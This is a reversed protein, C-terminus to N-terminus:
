EPEVVTARIIPKAPEPTEPEPEPEPEETPEAEEVAEGSLLGELLAGVTEGLEVGTAEEISGTIVKAANDQGGLIQSLAGLTEPSTGLIENLNEGAFEVPFDRLTLKPEALPGSGRVEITKGELGTAKALPENLSAVATFDTTQAALKVSGNVLLNASSNAIEFNNTLMIGSEILYSGSVAGAEEFRFAPIVRGLLNQVPGVVPFAPLTAEEVRIDGGGRIREVDGYGVGRFNMYLDGSMGIDEKGFYASANALPLKAIEILGSFPTGETALNVTGNLAVQGGLLDAALDNTELRGDNIDIQGRIGTVPLDGWEAKYVLGKRHEYDISLQAAEPTELPVTGSFHVNPADAFAVKAWKERAEPRIATYLSLLDVSSQARAIDIRKEATAVTFVGGIFGEGHGIQFNSFELIESSPDFTCAATASTIPVGRWTFDSGNLTAKIKVGETAKDGHIDVSLVPKEGETELALFAAAAKLPALDVAFPRAPAAEAEGKGSGGGGAKKEPLAVSGAALVRLGGIEADFREVRVTDRDILIEGDISELAVVSDGGEFVSINSDDLSLEAGSLSERDRALGVFDVNVGIDSAQIAPTTKEASEYVTVNKLVLGRPFAWEWGEYDLYIGQQELKSKAITDIERELDGMKSWAIAAGIGVIALLLLSAIFFLTAFITWCGAKPKPATYSTTASALDVPAQNENLVQLLPKEEGSEEDDDGEDDDGEDDVERKDEAVEDKSKKKPEPKEDEASKEKEKDSPGDAKKTKPGSVTEDKEPETEPDSKEPELKPEEEVEEKEEVPVAKKKRVMVPAAAAKKKAKPVKAVGQRPTPEDQEGPEGPPDEPKAAEESDGEELEKAEPSKKEVVVPSPEAKSEEDEDLDILKEVEPEEADPEVEEEVPDADEAAPTEKATTTFSRKKRVPPLLEDLEDKEESDEPEEPEPEVNLKEEVAGIEDSVDVPEAEDTEAKAEKEEPEDDWWRDEVPDLLDGAEPDLAVEDGVHIGPEDDVESESNEADVGDNGSAKDKM